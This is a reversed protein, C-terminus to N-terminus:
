EEDDEDDAGADDGGDREDEDEDSAAGHARARGAAPAARRATGAETLPTEALVVLHRLVTEDLKVARRFEELRDPAARFQAVVYYGNAQKRIPYALPRKGWHDVALVAGRGDATLTRHFKELKEDIAARDLAADFIYVVEYDRV